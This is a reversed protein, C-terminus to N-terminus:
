TGIVRTPHAPQGNDSMSRQHDHDSGQAQGRPGAAALSWGIAIWLPFYVEATAFTFDFLNLVMAVTLIALGPWARSMVLLWTVGGLWIVLGVGALLGGEALAQLLLNHAHPQPTIRLERARDTPNAQLYESYSPVGVLPNELFAQWAVRYLEVRVQTTRTDLGFPAGLRGLNLTGEALVGLVLAIALGGVAIRLSRRPLRIALALLGALLWAGASLRSGTAWIGLGSALYGALGLWGPRVLLVSIAGGMAMWAGLANPNFSWLMERYSPFPRDLWRIFAYASVGSLVAAYSWHSLARRGARFVLWGGVGQALISFSMGVGRDLQGVAWLGSGALFLWLGPDVRPKWLGVPLHILGALLPHAALLSSLLARGTGM